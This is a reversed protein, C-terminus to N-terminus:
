REWILTVTDNEHEERWLLTYEDSHRKNLVGELNDMDVFPDVGFRNKSVFEEKVAQTPEPRAEMARRSLWLLFDSRTKLDKPLDSVARILTAYEIKEEHYSLKVFGDGNCERCGRSCLDYCAPCPINYNNM